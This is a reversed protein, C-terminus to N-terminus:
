SGVYENDYENGYGAKILSWIYEYAESGPNFANKNQLAVYAISRYLTGGYIVMDQSADNADKPRIVMYSRMAFDNGFKGTWPNKDDEVLTNTYQIVDKNESFVANKNNTISFAEGKVCGSIAKFSGDAQKELAPEQGNLSSEWAMITGYEMVKYGDYGNKILSNRKAVPISTIIRIGKKGTIRISAGAYKLIDDLNEHYNLTLTGDENKEFIYVKMSKPYITHIDEPTSSENIEYTTAVVNKGNDIKINGSNDVVYKKGDVYIIDNEKFGANTTSVINNIWKAKLTINGFTGKEITINENITEEDNIQWGDFTYGKKTPNNITFTETEITYKEPNTEVSADELGDYTITYEILKACAKLSIDKSPMKLMLQNGVITCGDTDGEWKEFEYGDLLDAILSVESQYNYNFEGTELIIGDTKDLTLKYQKLDYYINITIYNEEGFKLVLSENKKSITLEENYKYGAIDNLVYNSIDLEKDKEDQKTEKLYMTYGDIVSNNQIYHVVDFKVNNITWDATFTLDSAPMITPIDKDWGNFLYGEKTPNDPVIISAGYKLEVPNKNDINADEGINFTLKYKNRDYYVKLIDENSGKIITSLKSKTENYTFGEVENATTSVEDNIKAYKTKTADEKLTYEDNEINQYYYEITYENESNEQLYAKIRPIGESKISSYSGSGNILYSYDNTTNEHFNVNGYNSLNSSLPVIVNSGNEHTYTIVVSFWQDKDVTVNSGYSQEPSDLKITHYGAYTIKGKQEYKLTGSLPNDSNGGVYIDIIYETDADNTYIGVEKILSDDQAKFVNALKVSDSSVFSGSYGDDYQYINYDNNKDIKEIEYGFAETDFSSDYYSLWFYGNDGWLTSWSNKILWAGNGKPKNKFNDASYNDDWGVITVAHNQSRPGNIYYANTNSNFYNDDYYFSTALAGKEMIAKKIENRDKANYWNVEVLRYDSKYCVDNNPLESIYNQHYYDTTPYALKTEDILGIGASLSQTAIQQNGGNDLPDDLVSIPLSNKDKNYVYEGGDNTILGLDDSVKYDNFAFWALQLESLDITANNNKILYNSEASAIAAFAWCSGYPNQFKVSTVKGEAVLSYSPPYSETKFLKRNSYNHQLRENDIDDEIYNLKFEIELDEFNDEQEIDNFYEILLNYKTLDLSSLDEDNLINISSTIDSIDQKVISINEESIEELSPLNYILNQIDNCSTEYYSNEQNEAYIPCYVSLESTILLVVLYIKFIHKM